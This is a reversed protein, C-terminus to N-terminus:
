FTLREQRNRIEVYCEGGHGDHVPIMQLGHDQALSWLLQRRTIAIRHVTIKPMIKPVSAWRHNLGRLAPQEFIKNLPVEDMHVVVPTDLWANLPAHMTFLFEQPVVGRPAVPKFDPKEELLSCSSMGAVLAALLLPAFFRKM